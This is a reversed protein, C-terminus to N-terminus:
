GSGTPPLELEYRSVVVAPGPDARRGPPGSVLADGRHPFGAAEYYDRLQRNSAVCDLRLFQRGEAAATGVARDLLRSGLGAAIRRVALRHVYAAPAPLDAWLRRGLSPEADGEYRRAHQGPAARRNGTVQLSASGGALDVDHV